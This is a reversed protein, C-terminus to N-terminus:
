LSFYYFLFSCRYSFFLFFYFTSFRLWYYSSINESVTKSLNRLLEEVTHPFVKVHKASLKRLSRVLWMLSFYETFLIDFAIYPIKSLIVHVFSLRFHALMSLKWGKQICVAMCVCVHPHASINRWTVRTCAHRTYIRVAAHHRCCHHHAISKYVCIHAYVWECVCVHVCLIRYRTLRM